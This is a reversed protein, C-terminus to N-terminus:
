VWVSLRCALSDALLLRTAGCVRGVKMRLAQVAYLCKCRTSGRAPSPAHKANQIWCWLRRFLRYDCSSNHDSKRRRPLIVCRLFCLEVVASCCCWRDAACRDACRPWSGWVKDCCVEVNRGDRRPRVSGSCSRRSCMAVGLESGGALPCASYTCADCFLAGPSEVEPPPNQTVCFSYMCDLPPCRFKARRGLLM